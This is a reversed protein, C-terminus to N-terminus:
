STRTADKGTTTNEYSNGGITITLNPPLVFLQGREELQGHYYQNCEQLAADVAIQRTVAFYIVLLCLCLITLVPITWQPIFRKEEKEAMHATAEM